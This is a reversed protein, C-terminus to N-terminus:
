HYLRAGEMAGIVTEWTPLDIAQPGTRVTQAGHGLVVITRAGQADAPRELPRYNATTAGVFWDSVIPTAMLTYGVLFLLWYFPAIRWMRRSWALLVGFALAAVVFTVSSPRLALKLFAAVSELAHMM